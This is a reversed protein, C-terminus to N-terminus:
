SDEISGKFKSMTTQKSENIGNRLIVRKCTIFLIKLDILFSYNRVYFLDYKFKKTWSIANRGNIQALGTIGPKVDHRKM